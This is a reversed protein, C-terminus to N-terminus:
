KSTKVFDLLTQLIAILELKGVTEDKAVLINNGDTEIILQRRREPGVEPTFPVKSKTSADTEQAVEKKEEKM